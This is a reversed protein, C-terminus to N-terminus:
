VTEARIFIQPDNKFFFIIFVNQLDRIYVGLFIDCLRTMAFVECTFTM